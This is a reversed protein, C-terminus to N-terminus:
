RSAGPRTMSDEIRNVIADFRSKEAQPYSIEFASFTRHDPSMLVKTYFILPDEGAASDYYGSLVFWSGGNAQYTITRVLDGASLRSAFDQLTLGEASGRYLTIQGDGSVEALTLGPVDTTGLAAFLGMPLDVTFAYAPDTYREWGFDVTQAFVGSSTMLAVAVSIQAIARVM